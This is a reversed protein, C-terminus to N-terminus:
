LSRYFRELSKDFTLRFRLAEVKPSRFSFPPCGSPCIRKLLWRFAPIRFTFLSTSHLIQANRHANFRISSTGALAIIRHVYVIKCTFDTTICMPDSAQLACRFRRPGIRSTKGLLRYHLGSGYPPEISCSLINSISMTFKRTSFSGFM